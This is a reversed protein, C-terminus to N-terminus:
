QRESTFPLRVIIWQQWPERNTPWVHPDHKNEKDPEAGADLAFGSSANEIVFAARDETSRLRWRRSWDHHVRNDLWTEGWKTGTAMTTLWL